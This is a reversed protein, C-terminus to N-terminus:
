LSEFDGNYFVKVEPYKDYDEDDLNSKYAVLYCNKDDPHTWEALPAHYYLSNLYKYLNRDRVKQNKCIPCANPGTVLRVRDYGMNLLKQLVQFSDDETHGAMRSIKKHWTDEFRTM